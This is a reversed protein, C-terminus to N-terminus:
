GLIDIGPSIPFGKVGQSAGGRCYVTRWTIDVYGCSQAEQPITSVDVKNLGPSLQFGKLLAINELINWDGHLKKSSPRTEFSEVETYIQSRIKVPAGDPFGRM